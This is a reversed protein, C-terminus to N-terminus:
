NKRFSLFRNLDFSDNETTVEDTANLSLYVPATPSTRSETTTSHSPSSIVYAPSCAVSDSPFPAIPSTPPQPVPLHTPRQPMLLQVQQQPPPGMEQMEMQFLFNQIQNEAVSRNRPGLKRLKAAVMQGFLCAEDKETLQAAALKMMEYAEEERPDKDEQKKKILNRKNKLPQPRGPLSQTDPPTESINGTEFM